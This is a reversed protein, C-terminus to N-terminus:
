SLVEIECEASRPEGQCALTYGSELDRESLVHNERLTVQGKLLRAMCTGCLGQECVFPTLLNARRMTELLTDGRRYKLRHVRGHMHVVVEEPVVESQM